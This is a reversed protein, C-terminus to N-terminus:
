PTFRMGVGPNAGSRSGDRRRVGLWGMLPESTHPNRYFHSSSIHPFPFPTLFWSCPKRTDAIRLARILAGYDTGPM